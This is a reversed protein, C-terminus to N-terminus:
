KKSSSAQKNGLYALFALAFFTGALVFQLVIDSTGPLGPSIKFFGPAFIDRFGAVLNLGGALAFGYVTIRKVKALNKETM